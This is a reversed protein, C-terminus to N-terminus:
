GAYLVGYVKDAFGKDDFDDVGLDQLCKGVTYSHIQTGEQLVLEGHSGVKLLSGNQPIGEANSVRFGKLPGSENDGVAAMFHVFSGPVVKGEPDVVPEPGRYIGAVRADMSSCKKLSRKGNSRDIDVYVPDGIELGKEALDYRHCGTFTLYATAYINRVQNSTDIGIDLVGNPSPAFIGTNGMVWFLTGNTSYRIEGSGGAKISLHQGSPSQLILANIGNFYFSTSGLNLAGAVVPLIDNASFTMNVSLGSWRLQLDHSSTPGVLLPAGSSAVSTCNFIGQVYIGTFRNGGGGLYYADTTEPILSGATLRLRLAGAGYIITDATGTSGLAVQNSSDMGIVNLYASNISNRFGIYTANQLQLTVSSITGGSISVGSAAQTAMTGCGLNSRAESQTSAGTGGDVVALDVGSWNSGNITNLLAVTGLQLATRSQAPTKEIWTGASGVIFYDTAATLGAIQDLNLDYQQVDTGIKVGLSTRATDGSEAVWATGNGVIINNDTVALDSIQQLGSDWRQVHTDIVLGLAIRSDAADKQVWASGNGVIFNNLLPSLGAIQDLNPDWGQINDGIVISLASKTEALTKLVWGSVSGVIFTSTDPVLTAIQDLNLDYAQVDSGIVLGLGSRATLQTTGGTGGATVPVPSTLASIVGGEITIDAVNTGFVIKNATSIKLINIVGSPNGIGQFYTDNPLNIQSIVLDDVQDKLSNISGVVSTKVITDLVTLDGMSQADGTLLETGAPFSM